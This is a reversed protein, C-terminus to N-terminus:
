TTNPNNIAAAPIPIPTRNTCTIVFSVTGGVDALETQTLDKTDTLNKTDVVTRSEDIVRLIDQITTGGNTVTSQRYTEVPYFGAQTTAM